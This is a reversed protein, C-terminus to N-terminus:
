KGFKAQLQKYRRREVDERARAREEKLRKLERRLEEQSVIGSEILADRGFDEFDLAQCFVFEYDYGQEVGFAIFTEDTFAIIMRGSMLGYTVSEVTKGKTEAVGTLEVYM